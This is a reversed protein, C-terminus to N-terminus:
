VVNNKCFLEYAVDFAQGITLIIQTSLDKDKCSFVHCYYHSTQDTQTSFAFYNLDDQDQCVNNIHKIDHNWLVEKTKSHIMQVGNISIGIDLQPSEYPTNRTSNKLRDITYKVPDQNSNNRTLASSGLYQVSFNYSGGRILAKPDNKWIKKPCINVQDAAAGKTLSFNESYSNPIDPKNKTVKSNIDASSNRNRIPLTECDNTLSKKKKSDRKSERTLSSFNSRSLKPSSKLFNKLQTMKNPTQQQPQKPTSSMENLKYDSKTSSMSSKKKNKDNEIFTVSKNFSLSNSLIAAAPRM